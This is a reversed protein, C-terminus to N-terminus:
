NKNKQSSSGWNKEPSPVARGSLNVKRRLSVHNLYSGGIEEEKVKELLSNVRKELTPIRKHHHGNRLCFDSRGLGKTYNM